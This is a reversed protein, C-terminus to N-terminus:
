PRSARRGQGRGHVRNPPELPHPERAGQGEAGLHAVERAEGRAAPHGGAEPQGGRLARAAVDPAAAAKRLAAAAGDPPQEGSAGPVAAAPGVGRARLAPGGPGRPLDGAVRGLPRAPGGPAPGRHQPAPHTGVLGVRRRGGLRGAPYPGQPRRGLGGSQATAGGLARVYRFRRRGPAAAPGSSPLRRRGKGIHRHSAPVCPEPSRVPPSGSSDLHPGCGRYGRVHSHASARPNEPPRGSARASGLLLRATTARGSSWAWKVPNPDYSPFSSFAGWLPRRPGPARRM